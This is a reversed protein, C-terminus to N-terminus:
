VGRCIGRLAGDLVLLAQEPLGDALRTIEAESIMTGTPNNPNALFILRTRETVADLLADVDTRRENERVEVPTRGRGWHM